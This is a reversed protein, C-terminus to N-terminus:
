TQEGMAARVSDVGSTLLRRAAKSPHDEEWPFEDGLVWNRIGEFVERKTQQRTEGKTTCTVDDMGCPEDGRQGMIQDRLGSPTDSWDAIRSLRALMLQAFGVREYPGATKRGSSRHTVEFYGFYRVSPTVALGPANPHIVGEVTRHGDKTEIGIEVVSWESAEDSM